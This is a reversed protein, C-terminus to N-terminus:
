RFDRVLTANGRQPRATQGAFAGTKFYAVHMRSVIATKTRNFRRFTRVDTQNIREGNIGLGIFITKKFRRIALHNIALHCHFRFVKGSNFFGFIDNGLRISGEIFVARETIVQNRRTKFIFKHQRAGIANVIHVDRRFLNNGNRSRKNGEKFVVVGVTCQHARIHLALRHRCQTSVLRQHTSAHLAGNGAIGTHQHTSFTTPHNIENIRRTNDDLDIIIFYLRATQPYINVIEGFVGTGVLVGTDVLFRQDLRAINDRTAIHQRIARGRIQPFQRQPLIHENGEHRPVAVVKLVRDQNGLTDDLFVAEGRNM